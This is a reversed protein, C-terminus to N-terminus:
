TTDGYRLFRAKRQTEREIAEATNRARADDIRRLLEPSASKEADRLKELMEPSLHIQPETVKGHKDASFQIKELMALFGELPGGEAKADVVNGTQDCAASVTAYMMQQFQRGMDQTIKQVHRDISSLDHNVVDQFEFLVESTHQQVGVNIADPLGPHRWDEGHRLRQTNEPSVFQAVFDKLVGSVHEVFAQDFAAIARDDAFCNNRKTATVTM